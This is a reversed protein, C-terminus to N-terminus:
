GEVISTYEEATEAFTQLVSFINQTSLTVTSTDATIAFPLLTVEGTNNIIVVKPEAVTIVNNKADVGLLKAVYEDGHISRITVVKALLSELDHM